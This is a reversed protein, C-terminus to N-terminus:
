IGVPMMESLYGECTRVSLKTKVASPAKVIGRELLKGISRRPKLKSVIPEM